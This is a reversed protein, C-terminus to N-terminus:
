MDEKVKANIDGKPDAAATRSATLSAVLVLAVVAACSRTGM